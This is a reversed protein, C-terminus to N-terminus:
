ESDEDDFYEEFSLELIKIMKEREQKPMKKRAREIRRIDEDEINELDAQKILETNLEINLNNLLSNNSKKLYPLLDKFKVQKLLDSNITELLNKDIFLDPDSKYLSVFFDYASVSNFALLTYKEIEEATLRKDAFLKNDLLIGKISDPLNNTIEMHSPNKTRGLLYDITVGFYDAVKQLKDISPSNTNWKYIAGKGFDMEKELKPITTNYKKCLQQINEVLSM